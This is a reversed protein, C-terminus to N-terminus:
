NDHQRDGADVGVEPLGAAPFTKLSEALFHEDDGASSESRIAHPEQKEFCIARLCSDSSSRRAYVGVCKGHWVLM